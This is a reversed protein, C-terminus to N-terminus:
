TDISYALAEHAMKFRATEHCADLRVLGVTIGDVNTEVVAGRVFLRDNEHAMAVRDKGLALCVPPAELDLAAAGVTRANRVHLGTEDHIGEHEFGELAMAAGRGRERAEDRRILLDGRWRRPRHDLAHRALRSANEVRLGAPRRAIDHASALAANEQAHFNDSHRGVGAAVELIANGSDPRDRVLVDDGGR